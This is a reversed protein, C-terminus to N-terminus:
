LKHHNFPTFTIFIKSSIQNKKRRGSLCLLYIGLALFPGQAKDKFPWPTIGVELSSCRPAADVRTDGCFVKFSKEAVAAAWRM